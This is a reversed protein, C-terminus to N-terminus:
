LSEGTLSLTTTLSRHPSPVDQLCPPNRLQASRYGFLSSSIIKNARFGAKGPIHPRQVWYQGFLSSRKFFRCYFIQKVSGELRIQEFGQKKGSYSAELGLITRILM